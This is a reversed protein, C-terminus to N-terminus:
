EIRKAGHKKRKGNM